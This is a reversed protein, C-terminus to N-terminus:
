QLLDKLFKVFNGTPMEKEDGVVKIGESNDIIAAVKVPRRSLRAVTTCHLVVSRMQDPQQLHQIWASNDILYIVVATKEAAAKAPQASGPQALGCLAALAATVRSTM